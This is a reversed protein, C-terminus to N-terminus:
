GDSSAGTPKASPAFLSLLLYRLLATAFVM